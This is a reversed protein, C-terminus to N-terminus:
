VVEDDPVQANALLNTARRLITAQTVVCDHIWILFHVVPKRPGASGAPQDRSKSKTAAM